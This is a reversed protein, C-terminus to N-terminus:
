RYAIRTIIRNQLKLFNENARLQPYDRCGRVAPAAAGTEDLRGASESARQRTMSAARAQTVAVLTQQWTIYGQVTEV